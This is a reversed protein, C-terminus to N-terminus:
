KTFLEVQSTGLQVSRWRRTPTERKPGPIRLLRNEFVKLRHKERLAHSACLLPYSLKKRYILILQKHLPKRRM